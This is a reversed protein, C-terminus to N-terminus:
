KIQDIAISLYGKIACVLIAIAVIIRCVWKLLIDMQVTKRDRETTGFLKTKGRQYWFPSNGKKSEM